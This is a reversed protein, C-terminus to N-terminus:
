ATGVDLAAPARPPRAADRRRGQDAGGHRDDDGFRDVILWFSAALCTRLREDHPGFISDLDALQRLAEAVRPLDPTNGTM